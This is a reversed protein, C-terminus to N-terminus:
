ESKRRVDWNPDYKPDVPPKAKASKWLGWSIASLYGVIVIIGIADDLHTM